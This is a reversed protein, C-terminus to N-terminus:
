YEEGVKSSVGELSCAEAMCTLAEQVAAGNKVDGIKDVLDNVCAELSRLTFKSNSALYAVLEVKLKM